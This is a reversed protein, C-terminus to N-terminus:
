SYRYRSSDCFTLKCSPQSRILEFPHTSTLPNLLEISPTLPNRYYDTRYICGLVDLFLRFSPLYNSIAKIRNYDYLNMFKGTSKIRMFTDFEKRTNQLFNSM